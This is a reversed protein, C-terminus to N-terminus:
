IPILIMVLVYCSTISQSAVSSVLMTKLLQYYALLYVLSIISYAGTMSKISLALIFVM